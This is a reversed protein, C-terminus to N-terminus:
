VDTVVMRALINEELFRCACAAAAACALCSAASAAAPSPIEFEDLGEGVCIGTCWLFSDAAEVRVAADTWFGITLGNCIVKSKSNGGEGASDDGFAVSRKPSPKNDFPPANFPCLSVLRAGCTSGCIRLTALRSVSLTSPLPTCTFSSVLSSLGSFGIIKAGTGFSLSVVFGVGDGGVICGRVDGGIGLASVQSLICGGGCGGGVIGVGGIGFSFSFSRSSLSLMEVLLLPLRLLKLLIFDKM